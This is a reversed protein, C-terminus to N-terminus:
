VSKADIALFGFMPQKTAFQMERLKREKEPAINGDKSPLEFINAM